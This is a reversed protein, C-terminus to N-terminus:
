RKQCVQHDVKKKKKQLQEAKRKLKQGLVRVANRKRKNAEARLKLKKVKRPAKLPDGELDGPIKQM